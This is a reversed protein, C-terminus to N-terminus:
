QGLIHCSHAERIEQSSRLSSAYIPHLSWDARKGIQNCQLADCAALAVLDVQGIEFRSM